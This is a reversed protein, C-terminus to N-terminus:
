NSNQSIPRLHEVAWIAQLVQDRREASPFSLVLIRSPADYTCTVGKGDEWAALVAAAAAGVEFVVKFEPM